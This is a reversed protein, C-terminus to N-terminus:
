PTKISTVEHFLFPFLSTLLGIGRYNRINHQTHSKLCSHCSIHVYVETLFLSTPIPNDIVEQRLVTM